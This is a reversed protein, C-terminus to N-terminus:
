TAAGEIVQVLPLLLFKGGAVRYKESLSYLDLHKLDPPLGSDPCEGSGTECGTLSEQFEMGRGSGQGKKWPWGQLTIDSGKHNIYGKGSAVKIIPLKM